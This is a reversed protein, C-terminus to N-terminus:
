VNPYNQFRKLNDEDIDNTSFPRVIGAKKLFATAWSSNRRCEPCVPGGYQADPTAEDSPYSDKCCVCVFLDGAKTM